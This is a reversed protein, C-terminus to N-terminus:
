PWEKQVNGGNAPSSFSEPHHGAQGCRLEMRAADVEATRLNADKWLDLFKKSYEPSRSIKLPFLRGCSKMFHPYFFKRSSL